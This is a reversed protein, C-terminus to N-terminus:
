FKSFSGYTLNQLWKIINGNYRMHHMCRTPRKFAPVPIGRGSGAKVKVISRLKHPLAHTHDSSGTGADDNLHKHVAGKETILGSVLKPTM